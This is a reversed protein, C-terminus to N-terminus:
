EENPHVLVFREDLHKTVIPQVTEWTLGGAGCGPRPIAIPGSLPLQVLRALSEDILALDARALYGPLGNLGQQPKVPLTVLRFAEFVHPINGERELKIGLLNPLEPFLCKAQYAVGRGMVAKGLKTTFGNTTIVRWEAPIVWLDGIVEQYRMVGTSLM